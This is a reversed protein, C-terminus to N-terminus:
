FGRTASRRPSGEVSSAVLHTIGKIQRKSLGTSGKLKLVVSATAEKQDRSFLREKPMVIHVRAAQVENLQMITRTLEGELARRFNLNQLFDTMGLNNEDFISYGMNGTRPLGESALAIRTRYVDGSPVEVSSGGDSLQYPIRNDNLYAVIEGAESQDLDSYLRAYTVSNLWGVVLVIGVITGAVIGLLMMVQSPTMRGVYDMLNKFYQGIRGM